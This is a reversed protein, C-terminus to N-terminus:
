GACWELTRNWAWWPDPDQWKAQCARSSQYGVHGGHRTMRLDIAPNQECLHRIEPLLDPAFLPDDEAYLILTPKQLQPLLYLGSTADYYEAVTPFGLTEIVLEHDFQRIGDIREIAKPDFHNPHHHHMEWALKVLAKAIAKELNRRLIGQQLYDLSRNSELSPCIVAGGSIDDPELELDPAWDKLNQAAKIAWLALQGGLSYGTFWIPAPCGMAKAQAAIHVFDRGEYIGDSTLNPSLEGTKGHGRWDFLVVAFGNAYAKRGLIKLYWQNDLTGVIGYTGIITGHPNKPIASLGYIPVQNLGNFIHEQYPPEPEAVTSQWIKPARWAMYLTMLLGNKLWLPPTYM